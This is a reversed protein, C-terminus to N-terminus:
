YSSRVQVIEQAHCDWPHIQEICSRMIAAIGDAECSAGSVIGNPSILSANGFVLDYETAELLTGTIMNGDKASVLLDDGVMHGCKLYNQCFQLIPRWGINSRSYNTPNGQRYPVIIRKKTGPPKLASWCIAQASGVPKEGWSLEIDLGKHLHLVNEDESVADLVKGWEGFNNKVSGDKPIRVFWIEGILNIEHGFAMDNANLADWSIRTLINRDAILVGNALVWTIEKGPVSDRIEIKKEGGPYESGPAVPEGDLYVTGFKRKIIM